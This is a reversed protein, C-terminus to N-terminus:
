AGLVADRAARALVTQEQLPMGLRNWHFVVHRSLVGRLGRGLGGDRSLQGLETGARHFAHAWESLFALPGGDGTLVDANTNTTMLRRLAPALSSVQESPEGGTGGARMETVRAWVDGQEGWEQAAGRLLVSCLLISTERRGLLDGHDQRALYGLVNRSDHHFLRHAVDMSGSGGFAYTEAEYVTERWRVIAREAILSDLAKAVVSAMERFTTNAGPRCRLRWCPAKRIYWWQSIIGAAESDRMVPWLRTVAAQEASPWDPFEVHVQHWGDQRGELAAAGAARYAEMADRLAAVAMPAGAATEELSAGGLVALVAAEVVEPSIFGEM